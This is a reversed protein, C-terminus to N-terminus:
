HFNEFQMLDDEFDIQSYLLSKGDPSVSLSRGSFRQARKITIAKKALGTRLDMQEVEIPLDPNEYRLTSCGDALFPL